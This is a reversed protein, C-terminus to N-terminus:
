PKPIPYTTILNGAKDTYIEIWSTPKGGHKLATNGIIEGTDVIRKYQGGPIDIVPSKVVNPSQLIQKLNDASTSFISRSNALPRDFHGEFVHDFGASVPEGSKRLPTFRTQGNAVNVRSQVVGIDPNTVKAGSAKKPSSVKTKAGAYSLGAIMALDYLGSDQAFAYGTSIYGSLQMSGKSLGEYKQGTIYTEGRRLADNELDRIKKWDVIHYYSPDLETGHQELFNQLESNDLRRGDKDIFWNVTVEGTVPDEYPWAYITYGELKKLNNNFAEEKQTAKAVERNKWRTSIDKAWNMNLKSIDFTGTSANWATCNKVQALGNTLEQQSSEYESFFSASQASYTRLKELKEQRKQMAEYARMSRQELDPRSTKATRILDDLSRLLEQYGDIEAQIEDEDIDGGGVTAQYESLFKKHANALAEGTMIISQCIPTYAVMFYNKASDYAKSSLPASLFSQVSQQLSAAAQQAQSSVQSAQSSRTQAESVIFKLGM